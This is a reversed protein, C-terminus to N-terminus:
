TKEEWDNDDIPCTRRATLWREICHRHFAHMCKGWVMTCSDTQSKGQQCDLCLEVNLNRCIACLEVERDWSWIALHAPLRSPLWPILMVCAPYALLQYVIRDRTGGWSLGYWPCGSDSVWGLVYGM